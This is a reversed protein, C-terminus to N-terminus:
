RWVGEPEGEARWQDVSQHIAVFDRGPWRVMVEIHGVAVRNAIYLSNGAREWARWFHLDDDCRGDGWGGAPDPHGQFWPKPLAALKDARILTLGFHATRVRTLDPAFVAREAQTVTEGEAGGLTFMPLPKSRHSQISAIADAEPHVMMLQMLTAVHRRSFVTDYDLTLIADPSEEALISEMGRQLCQGWFAGTFTRFPIHLPTLAEVWSMANATWALRPMSCIAAVGLEPSHPKVGEINLSIPLAACDDPLDSTWPRLLVFGATAMATKLRREDFLSKHFDHEDAQGGMVYGAIPLAEGRGYAAAISAFDPVAIRIRGGPQLARFWDALVLPVEVHSFHELVHSARIEEVTGDGVPLPYIASGHAHGRPEFGAPSRAGAGLDLKM